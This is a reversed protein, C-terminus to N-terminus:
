MIRSILGKIVSLVVLAYIIVLELVSSAAIM